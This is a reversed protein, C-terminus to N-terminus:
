DNRSVACKKGCSVWITMAFPNEKSSFCGTRATNARLRGAPYSVTEDTM